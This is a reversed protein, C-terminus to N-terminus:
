FDVKCANYRVVYVEGKEVLPNLQDLIGPIEGYSGETYYKLGFLM